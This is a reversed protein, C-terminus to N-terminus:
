RSTSDRTELDSPKVENPRSPTPERFRLFHRPLGLEKGRSIGDPRTLLVMLMLLAVGLQSLGLLSPIQIPGLQVGDEIQSLLASVASVAITGIVAGTLSRVGGVILMALSLFTTQLYFADPSFSGQFGGYLVGAISAPVASLVFAIRRYRIINVGIARAGAEDERSARLRLGVRSNQLLFAALIAVLAWVLASGLTTTIPVGIMVSGGRTVADWNSAVNYVVLLVAFTGLSAALGSLRMLAFGVVAAVLAVFVTTILVTPILSFELSSLWGPLQPLLYGKMTAPISLLAGLYAGIAMFGVHGFSLVGSNGVFMYIGLVLVLNILMGVTDRQLLDPAPLSALVVILPIAAIAVLSTLPRLVEASVLSRRVRSIM